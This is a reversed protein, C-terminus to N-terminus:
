LHKLNPLKDFLGAPISSLQNDGLVSFCHAGMMFLVKCLGSELVSMRIWETLTILSSAPTERSVNM